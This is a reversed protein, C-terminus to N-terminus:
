TRAAFPGTPGQNNSPPHLHNDEVLDVRPSAIVARSREPRPTAHGFVIQADLGIAREILGIGRGGRIDSVLMNELLTSKGTGTKGLCYFHHRRDKSRIGITQNQGNYYAKAFYNIIHDNGAMHNYIFVQFKRSPISAKDM